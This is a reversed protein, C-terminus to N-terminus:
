YRTMVISSSGDLFGDVRTRVDDGILAPSRNSTQAVVEDDHCALTDQRCLQRNLKGGRYLHPVQNPTAVGVHIRFHHGFGRDGERSKDIREAVRDQAKGLRARASRFLADGAVDLVAAIQERSVAPSDDFLGLSTGPNRPALM